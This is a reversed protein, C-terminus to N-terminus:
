TATDSEIGVVGAFLGYAGLVLCLPPTLLRSRLRLPRVRFSRVTALVGSASLTAGYFLLPVRLTLGFYVGALMFPLLHFLALLALIWQTLPDEPEPATQERAPGRCGRRHWRWTEASVMNGCDPCAFQESEDLSSM